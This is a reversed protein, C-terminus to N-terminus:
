FHERDSRIGAALEEDTASPDRPTLQSALAAAVKEMAELQIAIRAKVDYYIASDRVAAELETVDEFGANEAWTTADGAIQVGTHLCHIAALRRPDAEAIEQYEPALRYASLLEEFESASSAWEAFQGQIGAEKLVLGCGRDMGLTTAIWRRMRVCLAEEALYESLDQKSMGSSRLWEDFKEPQELKRKEYFASRQKDIEESSARLGILSAFFVIISRDLATRQIGAFLPSHLSAHQRVQNLVIQRGNATIRRDHRYLTEFVSSRNFKFYIRPPLVVSGDLVGRLYLLLERADERKQDVHSVSLAQKAAAVVDNSLGSNLCVHGINEVTRDPYYVSRAIEIVADAAPQEIRGAAVAAALSARINVLALTLPKFDLESPAHLLAVEDDATLAGSRYRQFIDGIGIAGYVETEACRLAGMSSSGIIRVGQSLLFVIENHWVSLTNHFTGDVLAIIDARHETAARLLDGQEAPPLLIASPVIEHAESHPLSPGLFVVANV